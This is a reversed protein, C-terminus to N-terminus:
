ALQSLDSLAFVLDWSGPAGQPSSAPVSPLCLLQGGQIDALRNVAYGHGPIPSVPSQHGFRGPDAQAREDRFIGASEM